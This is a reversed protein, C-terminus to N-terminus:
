ADVDMGEEVEEDEEDEEEDLEGKLGYFDDQPSRPHIEFVQPKKNLGPGLLPYTPLSYLKNRGNTYYTEHFEEKGVWVCPRRYLVWCMWCTHEAVEEASHESTDIEAPDIDEGKIPWWNATKNNPLKQLTLCWSVACKRDSMPPKKGVYVSPWANVIANWNEVFTVRKPPECVPRHDRPIYRVCQAMHDWVVMRVGAFNIKGMFEPPNDYQRNHIFQLIRTAYMWQYNYSLDGGVFSYKDDFPSVFKAKKGFYQHQRYALAYWKDTDKDYWEVRLSFSHLEHFNDWAGHRPGLFWPTQHPKGDDMSEVTVVLPTGIPPPSDVEFTHRIWWFRQDDTNERSMTFRIQFIDKGRRGHESSLCADDKPNTVKYCLWERRDLKGDELPLDWNLGTRRLKPYGVEELSKTYIDRLLAMLERRRTADTDVKGSTPKAAYTGANWTAFLCCITTEAMAVMDIGAEQLRIMPLMVKHENGFKRAMEYHKLKVKPNNFDATHAVNRVHPKSLTKGGYKGFEGSDASLYARMPYLMLYITTIRINEDMAPYQSDVPRITRLTQINCGDKIVNWTDDTFSAILETLSDRLKAKDKLRDEYVYAKRLGLDKLSEFNDRISHWIQVIAKAALDNARSTGLPQIAREILARPKETRFAHRSGSDVDRFPVSVQHINRSPDILQVMLHDPKDARVCMGYGITGKPVPVEHFDGNPKKAVAKTDRNITIAWMEHPQIIRKSGPIPGARPHIDEM